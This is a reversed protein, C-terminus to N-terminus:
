HQSMKAALSNFSVAVVDDSYGANRKASPASFCHSGSLPLGTDPGDFKDGDGNQDGMPEAIILAWNRVVNKQCDIPGLAAGNGTTYIQDASLPREQALQLASVFDNLDDYHQGGVTDHTRDARVTLDSDVTAGRYVGYVARGSDPVALGLSRYPVWGVASGSPCQGHADGMRGNGTFDPCPLRDHTRAFTVMASVVNQADARGRWLREVRGSSGYSIAVVASILGIVVLVVALEPLSFGWQRRMVRGTHRPSRMDHYSLKNGARPRIPRYM